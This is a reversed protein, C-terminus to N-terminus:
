PPKVADGPNSPGFVMLIAIPERKRALKTAAAPKSAVVTAADAAVSGISSLVDKPPDAPVTNEIDEDGTGRAV